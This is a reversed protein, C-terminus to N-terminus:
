LYSIRELFLLIPTIFTHWRTTLGHELPHGNVWSYIPLILLFQHSLFNLVCFITNLIPIPTPITNLLSLKPYFYLKYFEWFILVFLNSFFSPTYIETVKNSWQSNSATVSKLDSINNSHYIKNFGKLYFIRHEILWAILM